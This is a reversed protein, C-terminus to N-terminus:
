ILLSYLQMTPILSEKQRGLCVIKLQRHNHQRESTYSISSICNVMLFFMLRFTQRQSKYSTLTYCLRIIVALNFRTKKSAGAPLPFVNTVCNIIWDNLTFFLNTSGTVEVPIAENNKSFLIVAWLHKETGMCM